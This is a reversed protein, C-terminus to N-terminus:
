AKFDGTEKNRERGFCKKQSVTCLVSLIKEFCIILDSCWGLKVEFYEWYITPVGHFLFKQFGILGKQTVLWAAGAMRGVKASQGTSSPQYSFFPQDSKLFKKEM